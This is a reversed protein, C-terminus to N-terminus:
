PDELSALILLAVLGGLFKHTAYNIKKILDM